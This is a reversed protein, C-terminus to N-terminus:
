VSASAPPGLARAPPTPGYAPPPPPSCRVILYALLDPDADVAPPQGFVAAWLAQLEEKADPM